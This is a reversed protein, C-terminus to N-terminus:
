VAEPQQGYGGRLKRPLSLLLNIEQHQAPSGCPASSTGQLHRTWVEAAGNLLSAPNDAAEAQLSVGEQFNGEALM